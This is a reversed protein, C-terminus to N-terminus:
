VRFQSVNKKKKKYVLLNNKFLIILNKTIFGFFYKLTISLLFIYTCIHSLFKMFYELFIKFRM